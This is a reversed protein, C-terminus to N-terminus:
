KIIKSFAEPNPCLNVDIGDYPYGYMEAVIKRKKAFNKKTIPVKIEANIGATMLPLENQGAKVYDFVFVQEINIKKSKVLEKIAINTGKHRQHGYEGNANHTFLCSFKQNKTHKLILKKIIPITQKVSLKNEDDLDEIIGKAKITKM